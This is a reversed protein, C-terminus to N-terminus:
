AARGLEQSDLKELVQDRQKTVHNTIATTLAELDKKMYAQGIQRHEELMMLSPVEEGLYLTALWRRYKEFDKLVSILQLNDCRNHLMEPFEMALRNYEKRRSGKLADRMQELVENITRHDEATANKSSIFTRNVELIIWTEYTDLVFKKTPTGVRRDRLGVRDAFGERELSALVDRVPSRSTGFEAAIAEESLRTGPVLEGNVIRAELIELIQETLSKRQLLPETRKVAPAQPTGTDAPKRASKM